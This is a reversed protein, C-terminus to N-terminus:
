VEGYERDLALLAAPNGAAHTLDGLIDLLKREEEVQELLWPWLFAVTEPDEFQEALYHLERIMASTMQERAMAAQFGILVDDPPVSPFGQLAGVAPYLNRDILYARFAAAHGREQEAQRYHWAAFGRWNAAEFSNAVAEYFAANAREHNYQQTLGAVLTEHM